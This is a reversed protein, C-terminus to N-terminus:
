ARLSLGTVGSLIGQAKSYDPKREGLLCRHKSQLPKTFGEARRLAFELYQTPDVEM